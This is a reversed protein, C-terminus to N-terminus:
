QPQLTLKGEAVSEVKPRSFFIPFYRGRAWYEFLDRYHPSRVDGSQGPNNLGVSNDWDETDSVIQNDVTGPLIIASQRPPIYASTAGRYLAYDFEPTAIINNCRV